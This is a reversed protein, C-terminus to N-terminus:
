IYNRINTFTKENVNYIFSKLPIILSYIERCNVIGLVKKVTRVVFPLM